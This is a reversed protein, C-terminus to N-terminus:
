GNCCAKAMDSLYNKDWALIEYASIDLTVSVTYVEEFHQNRFRPDFKASDKAALYDCYNEWVRYSNVEGQSMTALDKEKLM